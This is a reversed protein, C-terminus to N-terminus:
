LNSKPAAGTVVDAAGTVVRVKRRAGSPDLTVTLFKLTKV